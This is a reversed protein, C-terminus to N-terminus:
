PLDEYFGPVLPGYVRYRVNADQKNMAVLDILSNDYLLANYYGSDPNSATEQALQGTRHNYLRITAGYPNGQLTVNGQIRYISSYTNRMRIEADDLAYNYIVFNSLFGFTNLNGPMMGMFFFQGPLGTSVLPADIVTHLVADVWIYIKNAKRVLTLYHWLNDTFNYLGGTDTLVRTSVQYDSNISFQIMGSQFLNNRRNMEVLIGNWPLDDSQSSFLISRDATSIKFWTEVTYDGGPNFITSEGGCNNYAHVVATGGHFDTSSSGIPITPGPQERTLKGLGGQYLGNLGGPIANSMTFDLSTQADGMPYFFAPQAALVIDRYLMTKRYLRANEDATLARDIIFIQDFEVNSVCRNSFASDTTESTGAIEINDTSSSNVYDDVDTFTQTARVHGNVYLTAEMIWTGELTQYVNWTFTIHNRRNYFWGPLGWDMNTGNPLVVRIVGTPSGYPEYLFIRFSSGKRIMPSIRTATWNGALNFEVSRWASDTVEKDFMLSVTFSGNNADFHHQAQHTVQVFAQPWRTTAAPQYGYWGFSTAYQGAPELNVLSQIGARYAPHAPDENMIMTPASYGSEDILDGSNFTHTTPNVSDGDFTLFFVPNLSQVTEKYGPM